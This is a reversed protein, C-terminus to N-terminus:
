FNLINKYFHSLFFILSVELIRPTQTQYRYTMLDMNMNVDICIYLYM